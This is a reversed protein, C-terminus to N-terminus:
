AREILNHIKGIYRRRRAAFSRGDATVANELERREIMFDHAADPSEEIIVRQGHKPSDSLDAYKHLNYTVRYPEAPTTRPALGLLGYQEIHTKTRM